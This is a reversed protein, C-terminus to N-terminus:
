DSNPKRKRLVLQFAFYHLYFYYKDLVALISMIRNYM